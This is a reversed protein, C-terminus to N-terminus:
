ECDGETNGARGVADSRNKRRSDSGAPKSDDNLDGEERPIATVREQMTMIKRRKKRGNDVVFKDVFTSSAPSLLQSSFTSCLPLSTSLVFIDLGTSPLVSQPCHSKKAM